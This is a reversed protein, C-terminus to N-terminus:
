ERGAMIEAWVKTCDPCVPFKEPDAHPVWFKGCLAKIPTGFVMADTLKDKKVIHSFKDHNGDSTNVTVTTTIAPTKTPTLTPVPM